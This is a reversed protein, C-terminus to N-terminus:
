PIVKVSWGDPLGNNPKGKPQPQAPTMKKGVEAGQSFSLGYEDLTDKVSSKASQLEVEMQDLAANIQGASWAKNLLQEAQHNDDVTTQGGQKLVRAYVKSLSETSIGLKVLDENGSRKKLSDLAANLDTFQTHDLKPLLERVRPILRNAENEALSLGAAKVTLSRAAANSGAIQTGLKVLDTSSLQEGKAAAEKRAADIVMGAASRPPHMGQIFSQIQEPTADPEAQLFRQVALNAANTSQKEPEHFIISGDRPDRMTQGPRTEVPATSAAIRERWDTLAAVQGRAHQNASLRAIEQDIALIAQQEQGPKFGQPLPFQPMIPRLAPQPAQQPQGPQSQPQGQPQVSASRGQAQQQGTRAAYNTVIKGARQAQEPTLPADPPVGLAKAVLGAVMPAKQPDQVVKGVMASVSPGGQPAKVQGGSADSMAQRAGQLGGAPGQPQSAEGDPSQANARPIRSGAAASVPPVSPSADNRTGDDRSAYAMPQGGSQGGGKGYQAALQGITLKKQDEGFGYQQELATRTRQGFRALPITDAVKEQVEKPASMPTPYQRLDVGAKPAFDRWTPVNIQDYGQSRTGPGAVDPDVTSPINRNGSEIQALADQFRGGGSAQPASAGSFLPSVPVNMQQANQALPGLAAISGIDGKQALTQLIKAYDPQGNADTPVGNAFAQSQDIQMQEQKLKLKNQETKQQNQEAFQYDNVLNGIQNGFNDWNPTPYAPAPVFNSM